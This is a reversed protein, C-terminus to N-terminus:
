DMVNSKRDLILIKPNQYNIIKYNACLKILKLLDMLM